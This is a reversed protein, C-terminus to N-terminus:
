HIKIKNFDPKGDLNIKVYVIKLIAFNIHLFQFLSGTEKQVSSKTVIENDYVKPVPILYYSMLSVVLPALIPKQAGSTTLLSM